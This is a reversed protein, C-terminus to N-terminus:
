LYFRICNICNFTLLVMKQDNTAESYFCHILFLYKIMFGRLSCYCNSPIFSNKHLENFIINCTLKPTSQCPSLFCRDKNFSRTILNIPLHYFFHSDRPRIPLLEYYDSRRLQVLATASHYFPLSVGLRSVFDVTSFILNLHEPGFLLLHQEDEGIVTM